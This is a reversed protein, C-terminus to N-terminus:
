LLSNAKQDASPFHDVPRYSERGTVSVCVCVNIMGESTGTNEM